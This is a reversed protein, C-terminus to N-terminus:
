PNSSLTSSIILVKFLYPEIEQMCIADDDPNIILTPPLKQAPNDRFDENAPNITVMKIKRKEADNLNDMMRQYHRENVMATYQDNNVITPYM